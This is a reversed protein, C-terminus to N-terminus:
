AAEIWSDGTCGVLQLSKVNTLYTLQSFQETKALIKYYQEKDSVNKEVSNVLETLLLVPRCRIILVCLVRLLGSSHSVVEVVIPSPKGIDM